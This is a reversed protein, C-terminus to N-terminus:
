TEDRKLMQHWRRLHWLKKERREMIRQRNLNFHQICLEAGAQIDAIEDELWERNLKQTVPEKEDIGQIICRCVAAICEGLEEGFKGLHKLDIPKTIPQWPSPDKLSNIDVM